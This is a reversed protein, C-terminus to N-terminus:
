EGRLDGVKKTFLCIQIATYATRNEHNGVHRWQKMDADDTEVSPPDDVKVFRLRSLLEERSAQKEQKPGPHCGKEDLKDRKNEPSLFVSPDAWNSINEAVVVVFRESVLNARM